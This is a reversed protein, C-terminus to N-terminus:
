GYIEYLCYDMLFGQIEYDIVEDASVVVCYHGEELYFANWFCYAMDDVSYYSSRVGDYCYGMSSDYVSIDAEHHSKLSFQYNGGYSVEFDYVVRQGTGSIFVGYPLETKNDDPADPDIIEGTEQRSVKVSYESSSEPDYTRPKLYVTQGAALTYAIRFQYNGASDDDSSIENKLGEDSYLCGYMNNESFSEFVYEGNEPATFSFIDYYCSNYNGSMETDLQLQKVTSDMKNLTFELHGTKTQVQDFRFTVVEGAALYFVCAADTNGPELDYYEKILNQYGDFNEMLSMHFHNGSAGPEDTDDPTGPIFEASIYYFGSEEVPYFFNTYDKTTNYVSYTQGCAVSIDERESVWANINGSQNEQTKPLAVFYYNQSEWCTFTYVVSNDSQSSICGNVNQQNQGWILLYVANIGDGELCLYYTKGAEGAFTRYDFDDPNVSMVNPNTYDNVCVSSDMADVKRIRFTITDDDSTDEDFWAHIYATEGAELNTYYVSTHNWNDFDAYKIVTEQNNSFDYYFHKTGIAEILYNGSEPAEFTITTLEGSMAPVLTFVQKDSLEPTEHATYAAQVHYIGTENKDAPKIWLYYTQNAPVTVTWDDIQYGSFEGTTSCQVSEDWYYIVANMETESRLNLKVQTDSDGAKLAYWVGGVDAGDRSIEGSYDVGNKAEIVDVIANVYTLASQGDETYSVFEDAASCKATYCADGSININHHVTSIGSDQHLYFSEGPYLIEYLPLEFEDEVVHVSYSQSRGKVDFIYITAEGPNWATANGSSDVTLVAENNSFYRLHTGSVPLQVTEGEQMWELNFPADFDDEFATFNLHNLDAYDEASSHAYGIITDGSDLGSDNSFSLAPYYAMVTTDGTNHFAQKGIIRVSESLIVTDVPVNNFAYAGIGEVGDEVIVTDIRRLYKFFSEQTDAIDYFYGTGSITLTGNEFSYTLDSGCHNDPYEITLTAPDSIVSQGYADLVTCRYQTGSIATSGDITLVASNDGCATWTSGDTSSEWAYTLDGTGTAQISFIAQDYPTITESVPSILGIPYVIIVSVEDSIISNGESDTIVCRIKWGDWSPYIYKTLSSSDGNQLNAWKTKGTEMYQWKFTVNETSSSVTWTYKEWGKGIYDKPQTTIAVTNYANETAYATYALGSLTFPVNACIVSIVLLIAIVRQNIKM